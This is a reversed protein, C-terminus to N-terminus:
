SNNQRQSVHEDPRSELDIGEDRAPLNLRRRVDSPVEPLTWVDRLETQYEPTTQLYLQTLREFTAGKERDTPLRKAGEWFDSWSTCSAIFRDQRLVQLGPASQGGM